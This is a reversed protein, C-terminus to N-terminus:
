IGLWTTIAIILFAIWLLHRGRSGIVSLLASLLFVFAIVHATVTVLPSSMPHLALVMLVSAAGWWAISTLHWAIRTTRNVYIENGVEELHQREFLYHLFYKEGLLSHALGILFTLISAILFFINM